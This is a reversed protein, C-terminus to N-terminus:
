AEKRPVWDLDEETFQPKPNRIGRFLRDDEAMDEKLWHMQRAVQVANIADQPTFGDDILKRIEDTM